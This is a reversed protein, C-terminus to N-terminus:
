RTTTSSLPKKIYCRLSFSRIKSHKYCRLVLNQLLNVVIGIGSGVLGGGAADDPYSRALQKRTRRQIVKKPTSDAALSSTCGGEGPCPSRLGPPATELRDQNHLWRQSRIASPYPRRCQWCGLGFDALRQM